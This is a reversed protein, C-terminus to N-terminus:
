TDAVLEAVIDLFGQMQITPPRSELWIAFVDFSIAPKIPQFVLDPTAVVRATFNDILAARVGARVLAAAIYFTRASISEDFGVDLRTMERSILDGIPGSQVVSVIKEASLSALAVRETPVEGSARRTLLGLEGEGLWRTALPFGAPPEFAIVVDTSQDFLARALDGHHVVDLDFATTPHTELYRAVANPLLGLGLSPLASVRLTGGHGRRINRGTQKLAAVKAQIEAVEGFMARADETAILRRHRRDFLPFGLKDEAHRLTKTVSPQSIGLARAAASVSGNMYVAYFIEIQRLNM